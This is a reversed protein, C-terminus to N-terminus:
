IWFTPIRLLKKLLNSKDIIALDCMAADYLKSKFRKRNKRDGNGLALYVFALSFKLFMKLMWM